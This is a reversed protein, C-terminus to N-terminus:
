GDDEYLAGAASSLGPYIRAGIRPYNLRSGVGVTDDPDFPLFPVVAGARVYMPVETIDVRMTHLGGRSHALPAFSVGAQPILAPNWSKSTTDTSPLSSANILGGQLVSYWFGSDATAAASVPDRPLTARGHGDGDGPLWTSWVALSSNPDAPSTVPSV